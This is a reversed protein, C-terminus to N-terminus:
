QTKIRRADNFRMRFVFTFPARARGATEATDQTAIISLICIIEGDLFCIAETQCGANGRDGKKEGLLNSGEIIGPSELASMYRHWGNYSIRANASDKVYTRNTGLDSDTDVYEIRHRSHLFIFFDSLGSKIITDYCLMLFFNYRM